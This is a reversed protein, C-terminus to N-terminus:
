HRTPPVHGAFLAAVDDADYRYTHNSLDDHIEVVGHEAIIAEVEGRGLSLLMSEVKEPDMPWHHTVPRADFLRVHEEHFLRTLLTETDLTLLEDPRATAALQTIRAWGDADKEDADPLKQLFLGAAADGNCALLLTAPQQESLALYHEFVAAMTDGEIPVYSQYPQLQDNVEYTLLLRGDGVMAPLPAVEPVADGKAYGRINLTETCDVVLLNLPGHGQLQFTLRGPQKLNGTMIATIAAMEGLVTRVPAAYHRDQIMARWADNLQVVAGRIDLEEFLFRQVFSTDKLM